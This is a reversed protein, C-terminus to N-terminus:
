ESVRKQERRKVCWSEKKREKKREKKEREREANEGGEQPLGAASKHGNVIDVLIPFHTHPGGHEKKGEENREENVGEDM